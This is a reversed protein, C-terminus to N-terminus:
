RTVATFLMELNQVDPVVNILNFMIKYLILNLILNVDRVGEFLQNGYSM